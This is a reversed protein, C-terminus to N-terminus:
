GRDGEVQDKEVEDDEALIRYLSRKTDGLIKKAQTVQSDSGTMMVQMSAQIIGGFLGKIERHDGHTDEALREFLENIADDNEEVFARGDDTITVTRQGKQKEVTVLGEEALLEIVPYISGPSPRWVGDTREEITQIITYGHLPGEAVVGLVALRVDGRGVRARGRGRGFGFPGFAPGGEMGGWGDWDGRGGGFPGGRRGGRM